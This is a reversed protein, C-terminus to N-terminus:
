LLTRVFCVCFLLLFAHLYTIIFLGFGSFHELSERRHGDMETLPQLSKIKTVEASLVTYPM